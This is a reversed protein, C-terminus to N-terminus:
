LMTSLLGLNHTNIGDWDVKLTVLIKGTPEVPAESSASFIQSNKNLTHILSGWENVVSSFIFSIDMPHFRELHPCYNKRPHFFANVRIQPPFCM